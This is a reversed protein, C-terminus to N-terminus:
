TAGVSSTDDDDENESGNGPISDPDDQDATEVQAYNAYVGTALVTATITLTETAGDALSGIDWIGTGPVYSGGSHSVYSYGSPLQDEVTM